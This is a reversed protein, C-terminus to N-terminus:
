ARTLQDERVVRSLVTASSGVLTKLPPRVPGVLRRLSPATSRSTSKRSMAFQEMESGNRPAPMSCETIVFGRGLIVTRATMRKAVRPVHAACVSSATIGPLHANEATTGSGLAGNPASNPDFPKTSLAVSHMVDSSGSGGMARPGDVGRSPRWAHL